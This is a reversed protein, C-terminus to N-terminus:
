GPRVRVACYKFAPIKGTPDVAPHTLVNACAERFHMPVFVSGRAVRERVRARLRIVGRRSAVEAWDGDAVGLTQADAPHIEVFAEPSITDLAASRRTMTGTHWHELVRGTNLVLPYDADAVEVPQGPQAPVLLARGRPFRERFVIPEGESREPDPDVIYGRKKLFLAYDLSSVQIEGGIDKAGQGWKIEIICKNGYNEAIYEAVGNRTDEVNLQVILDGHEEKYKRYIEVRRRMEPSDIVQDNEGLKLDPDVGCVNEGCVISIGSIAAGIAFHEWNKAAVETSGLAGTFVPLKMKVKNDEQSGYETETNVSPFLTSDPDAEVGEPLGKAGMAYGLINLHSYDVPYDKEAGATMDGFPGPFLLERGRM